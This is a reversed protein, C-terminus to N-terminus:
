HRAVWCPREGELNWAAWEFRAGRDGHVIRALAVAQDRVIVPTLDEWGPVPEGTVKQYALAATGAIVVLARADTNLGQAAVNEAVLGVISPIAAIVSRVEESSDDTLEALAALVGGGMHQVLPTKVLALVRKIPTPKRM